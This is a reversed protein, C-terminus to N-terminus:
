SIRRGWKLGLRIVLFVVFGGLVMVLASGLDGVLSEVFVTWQPVYSPTYLPGSALLSV